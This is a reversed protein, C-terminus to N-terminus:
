CRREVGVDAAPINRLYYLSFFHKAIRGIEILINTAPLCAADSVGSIHERAGDAEVLWDIGITATPIGTRKNVRVVHEVVRRGEVLVDAAPIRAIYGVHAPHEPEGRAEILVKTAPVHATHCIAIVDRRVSNCPVLRILGSADAFPFSLQSRM